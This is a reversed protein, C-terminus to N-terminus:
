ALEVRTQSDSVERVNRSVPCQQMRGCIYAIDEPTARGSVLRGRILVHLRLLDWDETTALDVESVASELVLGREACNARFYYHQCSLAAYVFLVFGATRLHLDFPHWVGDILQEVRLDEIANGPEQYGCSLRLQFRRDSM